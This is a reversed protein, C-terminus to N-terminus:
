VEVILIIGGEKINDKCVCLQLKNGVCLTTDGIVTIGESVSNNGRVTPYLTFKYLNCATNIRKYFFYKEEMNEYRKV